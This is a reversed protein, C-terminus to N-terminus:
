QIHPIQNQRVYSICESKGKFEPTVNYSRTMRLSLSGLPRRDRDDGELGGGVNKTRVMNFIELLVSQVVGYSDCM